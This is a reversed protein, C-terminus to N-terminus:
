AKNEKFSLFSFFFFLTMQQLNKNPVKLTLLLEFRWYCETLQLLSLIEIICFISGQLSAERVQKSSCNKQCCLPM